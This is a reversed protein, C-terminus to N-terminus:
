YGTTYFSATAEEINSRRYLSGIVVLRYEMLDTTQDSITKPVLKLLRVMKAQKATYMIVIKSFTVHYLLRLISAIVMPYQTLTPLCSLSTMDHILTLDTDSYLEIISDVSHKFKNTDFTDGYVIVVKVSM